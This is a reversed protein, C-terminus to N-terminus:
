CPVGFAALLVLLDSINTVGDGNADGECAGTCGFDGLLILVDAVSVIGDGNLDGACGSCPAPQCTGDDVTAEPAYNCATM